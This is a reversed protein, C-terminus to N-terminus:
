SGNQSQPEPEDTVQVKKEEPKPNDTMEEDEEDQSLFIYKSFLYFCDGPQYYCGVSVYKIYFIHIFIYM